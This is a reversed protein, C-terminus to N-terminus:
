IGFGFKNFKPLGRVPRGADARNGGGAVCAVGCAENPMEVNLV